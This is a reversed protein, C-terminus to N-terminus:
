RRKKLKNIGAQVEMRAWAKANTWPNDTYVERWSGADEYKGENKIWELWGGIGHYVLRPSVDDPNFRVYVVTQAPLKKISFKGGTRVKRNVEICAEWRRKKEPTEPGDIEYFFWRGTRLKRKKAWKVLEEFEPRMMDDGTYPGVYTLCVVTSSPENKTRLDVVL